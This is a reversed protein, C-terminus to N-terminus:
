QAKQYRMKLVSLTFFLVTFGALMAASFWFGSIFEGYEFSLGYLLRFNELYGEPAGTFMTALEGDALVQRFMAAAHSMPFFRVVWQVADPLIGVPIYIGMIFGMMSGIITSFGSFANQTKVFLTAFFMMANGCLSSLVVTLALLMFSEANPLSGGLYVIYGLTLALAVVTMILGVMGAGLMYGLSIKWRPVPSTMFDKGSDLKDAVAVGLSGLCASASTVAVMGAMILSAMTVRIQDNWFGLAAELNQEMMNGLFLIYLLLIILTSLLSFFVNLKDRFFLLLMRKALM